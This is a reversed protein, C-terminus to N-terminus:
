ALDSNEAVDPETATAGQSAFLSRLRAEWRLYEKLCRLAASVRPSSLWWTRCEESALYDNSHRKMAM